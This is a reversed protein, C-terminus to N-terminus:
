HKSVWMYQANICWLKLPFVYEQFSWLERRKSEKVKVRRGKGVTMLLLPKISIWIRRFYNDLTQYTNPWSFVDMAILHEFWIINKAHFYSHKDIRTCIESNSNYFNVSKTYDITSKAHLIVSVAHIKSFLSHLVLFMIPPAKWM